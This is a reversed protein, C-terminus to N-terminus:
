NGQKPAKIGLVLRTVEQPCHSYLGAHLNLLLISIATYPNQYRSHCRFILKLCRVMWGLYGLNIRPGLRLQWTQPWDLEVWGEGWSSTWSRAEGLDLHEVINLSLLRGLIRPNWNQPDQVARLRHKWVEPFRNNPLRGQVRQSCM